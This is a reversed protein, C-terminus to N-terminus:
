NFDGLKVTEIWLSIEGVQEGADSVMRRPADIPM